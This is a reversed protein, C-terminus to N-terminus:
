NLVEKKFDQFFKGSTPQETYCFEPSVNSNTTIEFVGMNKLRVDTGDIERLRWEPPINKIFLILYLPRWMKYKDNIDKALQERINPELSNRFKVELFWSKRNDRDIVFFDPLFRLSNARNIVMESYEERSMNNVGSIINEIGTQFVHYGADELFTKVIIEFTKGKLINRYNIRDESSPM